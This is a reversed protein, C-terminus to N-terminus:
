ETQRQLTRIRGLDAASIGVSGGPPYYLRERGFAGVEDYTKGMLGDACIAVQEHPLRADVQDEPAVLV